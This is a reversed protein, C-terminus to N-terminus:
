ILVKELMMYLIFEFHILSRFTLSSVIFGRSSFMPMVSQCLNCCYSM